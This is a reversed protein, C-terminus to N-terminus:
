FSLSLSVTDESAVYDALGDRVIAAALAEGEIGGKANVCPVGMAQLIIRSQDYVESTPPNNRREYSTLIKASKDELERALFSVDGETGEESTVESLRKWIGEEERVLQRQAQSLEQTVETEDDQEELRPLVIRPSLLAGMPRISALFSSYLVALMCSVQNFTHAAPGEAQDVTMRTPQQDVMTQTPPLEPETPETAISSPRLGSIVGDLAPSVSDGGTVSTPSGDPTSPTDASGRSYDPPADPEDTELEFTEEDIQHQDVPLDKTVNRLWAAVEAKEGKPLSEYSTVLPTLQALRSLREMEMTGRARTLKKQKCRKMVQLCLFIPYARTIHALGSVERQKAPSREKGDFVCIARVNNEHLEQIM